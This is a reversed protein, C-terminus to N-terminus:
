CLSCGGSTNCMGGPVGRIYEVCSKCIYIIVCGSSAYYILYLVPLLTWQSLLDDLCEIFTPEQLQLSPHLFDVYHMQINGFIFFIWIGINKEKGWGHCTFDDLFWLVVHKFFIQSVKGFRLSCNECEAQVKQRTDCNTCVLETVDKRNVCHSENEDHCFRCTYIKNCCPTQFYLYSSAVFNYM